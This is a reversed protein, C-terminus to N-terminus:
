LTDLLDDMRKLAEKLIEYKPSLAIRFGRGIHFFDGPIVRVDKENYLRECLEVSDQPHDYCLFGVACGDPRSWVVDGRGAAWQYVLNEKERIGAFYGPLVRHANRLIDLTIYHSIPNTMPVTYMKNRAARNLIRRPGVMWGSMLGGAGYVKTMSSTIIARDYIEVMSPFARVAGAGTFTMAYDRYVEDVLVPVRHKGLIRAIDRLEEEFLARGTPNNHNQMIFLDIGGSLKRDMEDLDFEFRPPRRKITIIGAGLARPIEMLPKYIPKEVLVRSGPGISSVMAIWNAESCGNTLMIRSGDVGYLESLHEVLDEVGRPSSFSLLGPDLRDRIFGTWDPRINSWALDFAPAQRRNIWDVHRFAPFELM